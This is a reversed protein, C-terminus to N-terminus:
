TKAGYTTCSGPPVLGCIYVVLIVVLVGTVNIPSCRGRGGGGQSNVHEQVKVPM